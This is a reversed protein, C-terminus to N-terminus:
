VGVEELRFRQNSSQEKQGMWRIRADDTIEVYSGDNLDGGDIIYTQTPKNRGVGRRRVGTTHTHGTIVCINEKLAYESAAAWVIRTLKTIPELEEFPPASPDRESALWGRSKCFKYWLGPMMDVMKEVFWPAVRGLGLLGWDLSWEHGHTIYYRRYGLETNNFEDPLILQKYVRINSYPAMLEEMVKFPDHNGTVYFLPYGDLIEALQVISDAGWWKKEGLPLIDFMDGACVLRHKNEKGQRIWEVVNEKLEEPQCHWDSSVWVAM